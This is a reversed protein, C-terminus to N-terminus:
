ERRTKEGDKSNLGSRQIGWGESCGPAAPVHLGLGAHSLAQPVMLPMAVYCSATTLARCYSQLFRLLSTIVRCIISGTASCRRPIAAGVPCLWSAAALNRRLDSKICGYHMRLGSRRAPGPLVSSFM